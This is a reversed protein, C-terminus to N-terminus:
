QKLCIIAYILRVNIPWLEEILTGIIHLVMKVTYQTRTCKQKTHKLGNCACWKHMHTQRM